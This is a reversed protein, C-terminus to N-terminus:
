EVNYYEKYKDLLQEEPQLLITVKCQPDGRAIAEDVSVAAYNNSGVAIKGFVDATMNCLATNGLIKDGFPCRNNRLVIKQSDVEEIFFDGGIRRKLDVFLNALQTVSFYRQGSQEHYQKIFFEAIRVSVLSIFAASENKGLISQLVENLELLCQQYFRQQDIDVNLEVFEIDKSQGM